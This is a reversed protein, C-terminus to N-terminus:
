GIRAGFLFFFAGFGMPIAAVLLLWGLAAIWLPFGSETTPKAVQGIVMNDKNLQYGTTTNTFMLKDNVKLQVEDEIIFSLTPHQSNFPFNLVESKVSIEKGNIKIDTVKLLINEATHTTYFKELVTQLPTNSALVAQSLVLCLLAMFIKKFM